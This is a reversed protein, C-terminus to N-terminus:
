QNYSAPKSGAIMNKFNANTDGSDRPAADRDTKERKIYFRTSSVLRKLAPPASHFKSGGFPKVNRNHSRRVARADDGSFLRKV